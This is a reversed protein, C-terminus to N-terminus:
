GAFRMRRAVVDRAVDMLPREDAYARARLLLLAEAVSVGVQVSVMGAAQHVEARSGSLTRLGSALGDPPAQEQNALVVDMAVGSMALADRHQEDSLMGPRDRYIMLSGLRVAGVRLPFAFMAEAGVEVAQPRFIPWRPAVPSLLDPELVAVGSTHANVSPGEGLSLSLEELRAAAPGSSCLSSALHLGRVTVGAGTIGVLEVCVACLRELLAAPDGDGLADAIRRLREDSEDIPKM